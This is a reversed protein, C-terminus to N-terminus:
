GVDLYLKECVQTLKSLLIQKASYVTDNPNVIVRMQSRLDPIRVCVLFGAGDQEDDYNNYM